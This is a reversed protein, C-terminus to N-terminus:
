GLSQSMSGLRQTMTETEIAQAAQTAERREDAEQEEAAEREEAARRIAEREERLAFLDVHVARGIENIRQQLDDITEHLGERIMTKIDEFDLKARLQGLLQESRNSFEGLPKGTVKHLSHEAEILCSRVSRPFHRDLLLFAAVDTPDIRGHERRYMQLASASKLLAAWQVADRPSGVGRRGGPLLIYYKVDLIRSTKDARELLRGLRAIHFAEDHTMTANTMGHITHSRRRIWKLLDDPNSLTQRQRNPHCDEDRLKLYFTNIEEWMPQSITERVTRANERAKELCSLISNPSELDCILFRKVNEATPTGYRAAFDEVEGSTEVLPKWQQEIPVTVSLAMHQNVELFRAINEAREIYRAMWFLSNAVRSLM